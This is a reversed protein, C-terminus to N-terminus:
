TTAVGNPGFFEGVFGPLFLKALAHSAVGWPHKYGMQSARNCTGAAGQGLEGRAGGFQRLVTVATLGIDFLGQGLAPVVAGAPNARHLTVQVRCPQGSM